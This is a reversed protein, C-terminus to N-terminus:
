DDRDAVDLNPVGIPCVSCIDISMPDSMLQERFANRTTTNWWSENTGQFSGLMHRGNYDYCCPVISGDANVVLRQWPWECKSLRYRDRLELSKYDVYRSHKSLVPLFARGVNAFESGSMLANFTKIKVKDVGYARARNRFSDVETENFRNVIFQAEIQPKQSKIQRRANILSGINRWVSELSGGVRYQGYSEQSDGDVAFRIRDLGAEVLEHALGNRFVTGNTTLEVWEIGHRKAISILDGINRHLLPEGYNYLEVQFVTAAIRKIISTFLEITMNAHKNATGNGVPCLPCALNCARVVEIMAFMPRCVPSALKEEPHLTTHNLLKAFRLEALNEFRPTPAPSPDVSRAHGLVVTSPVKANHDLLCVARIRDRVEKPLENVIEESTTTLVISSSPLGHFSWLTSAEVLLDVPRDFIANAWILDSSEKLEATESVTFPAHINSSALLTSVFFEQTEACRSLPIYGIQKGNSTRLHLM